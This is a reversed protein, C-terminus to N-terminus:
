GVPLRVFDGVNCKHGQLNVGQLQLLHFFSPDILNDLETRKRTQGALRPTAPSSRREADPCAERIQLTMWCRVVAATEASRRWSADRSTASDQHGRDEINIRQSADPSKM